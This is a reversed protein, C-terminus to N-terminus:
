YGLAAYANAYGSMVQPWTRCAAVWEKAAVGHRRRFEPEAYGALAEAWAEASFDGAITSGPAL